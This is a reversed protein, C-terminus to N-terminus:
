NHFLFLLFLYALIPSKEISLLLAQAKDWPFLGRLLQAVVHELNLWSLSSNIILLPSSFDEEEGWGCYPKDWLDGLFWIINGQLM